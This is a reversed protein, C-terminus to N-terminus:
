KQEDLLEEFRKRVWGAVGSASAEQIQALQSEPVLQADARHIRELSILAQLTESPREMVRALELAEAACDRGRRLEGHEIYQIAARNMVFSLRQKADAHRLETLAPELGSDDDSLGYSCVAHLSIMESLGNQGEAM